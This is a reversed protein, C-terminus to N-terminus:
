ASVLALMRARLAPLWRAALGPADASPDPQGPVDTGPVLGAVVSPGNQHGRVVAVRRRRSDGAGRAASAGGAATDGARPPRLAVAPPPTPKARLPAPAPEPLDAMVRRLDGFTKANLAAAVREDLEDATLRGEAVHDRLRATVRDRDADSTRIRDDM